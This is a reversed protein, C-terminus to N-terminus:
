RAAPDDGARHRRGGDRDLRLRPRCARAPLRSSCRRGRLRGRLGSRPRRRLRGSRRAVRGIAGMGRAQDRLMDNFRRLDRENSERELESALVRALMSFLQEDAITFPENSHRLAALSGVRTGDSLELPVGLYGRAGVREQMPLTSYIPHRGVDNCVRPARDEAMHSCFADGLPIALNSRLGIGGGNRADVIRHIFQGRDLHALFLVAEPMHRELLDLVSRTADAFSRYTASTAAAAAKIASADM